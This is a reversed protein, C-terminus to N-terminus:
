AIRFIDRVSSFDTNNAIHLLFLIYENNLYGMKNVFKQIINTFDIM